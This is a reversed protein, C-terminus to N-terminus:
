ICQSSTLTSSTAPNFWVEVPDDAVKYSLVSKSLTYPLATGTVMDKISYVSTEAPIEMKVTVGAPSKVAQWPSGYTRQWAYYLISNGKYGSKTGVFSMTALPWRSSYSKVQPMQCPTYKAVPANAVAAMDAMLNKFATYVPYPKHTTANVWEWGIDESMRYFIVPSLGVAQASLFDRLDFRAIETETTTVGCDRCAGTETVSHPVGGSSNPFSNAAVV